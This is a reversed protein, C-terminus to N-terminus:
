VIGREAMVRALTVFREPELKEARVGPDIGAAVLAEDIAARQDRPVWGAGKLANSITKRRQGFAARAVREVRELEDASVAPIARPWVRLFSSDVKPPPFFSGPSLVACIEVDVTLAHLVALSGYSKSGADAAIREAVERQIMISWDALVDRLDLLRRLIPTAVSYPLNAVVRVPAALDAVAERLDLQLADAHVLEVNEPLLSEAELARVLGADIEISRVRAARAALARTLVGLGTGIELVSDGADVGALRALREAQQDEVLFNQGLERSLHLGHRALVDRTATLGM